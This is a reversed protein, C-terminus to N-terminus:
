TFLILQSRCLTLIFFTKKFRIEIISGGAPCEIKFSAGFSSDEMIESNWDNYGWTDTPGGLREYGSIKGVTPASFRLANLVNFYRLSGNKPTGFPNISADVVRFRAYDLEMDM